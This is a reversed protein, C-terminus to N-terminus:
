FSPMKIEAANEELSIFFKNDEVSIDVPVYSKEFETKECVASNEFERDVIRCVAPVSIKEILRKGMKYGMSM